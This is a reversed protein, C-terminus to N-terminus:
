HDLRQMVTEYKLIPYAKSWEQVKGFYRTRM